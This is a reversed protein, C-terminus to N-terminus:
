TTIRFDKELAKCHKWTMCSRGPSEESEPSMISWIVSANDFTKLDSSTM